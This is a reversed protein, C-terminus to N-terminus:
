IKFRFWCVAHKLCRHQYAREVDGDRFELLYGYALRSSGPSEAPAPNVALDGPKATGLAEAGRVHDTLGGSLWTLAPAAVEPPLSAAVYEQIHRVAGLLDLSGSGEFASEHGSAAIELLAALDKLVDGAEELRLLAALPAAPVVPIQELGVFIPASSVQCGSESECSASPELDSSEAAPVITRKLGLKLVDFEALPPLQLRVTAKSSAEFRTEMALPVIERRELTSWVSVRWDRAEADERFGCLSLRLEPTAAATGTGMTGLALGPPTVAAISPAADEVSPTRHQIVRTVRARTAASLLALLEDVPLLDPRAAAADPAPGIADLTLLLCGELCGVSM